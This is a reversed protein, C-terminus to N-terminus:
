VIDGCWRCWSREVAVSALEDSERLWRGDMSENAESIARSGTEAALIALGKLIGGQTVSRGRYRRRRMAVLTTISRPRFIEEYNILVM